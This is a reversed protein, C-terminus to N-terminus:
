EVVVTPLDLLSAFYKMQEVTADYIIASHHTAGANSLKELFEPM